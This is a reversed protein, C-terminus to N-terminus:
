TWQKVIELIDSYKELVFDPNIQTFEHKLMEERKVDEETWHTIKVLVNWLSQDFDRGYEAYATKVGVENAIAIDKVLSDGVYLTNEISYSERQLIFKLSNISPKKVDKNLPVILERYEDLLNNSNKFDHRMEASNSAYLRTFFHIIGLKELRDLGNVDLAETHGVIVVGLKKLESLTEFVTDYLKLYKDRSQNFKLLPESLYQMKGDYDLNNIMQKVTPIEFVTYSRESNGYKQHLLKFESYLIDKDLSYICSLSDIMADFSNAFYTVWDYLTNDLDTILLM